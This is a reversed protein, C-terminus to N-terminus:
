TKVSTPINIAPLGQLRLAKGSEVKIRLFGIKDKTLKGNFTYIGYGYFLANKGNGVRGLHPLKSKSTSQHLILGDLIRFM